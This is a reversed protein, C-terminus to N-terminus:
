GYGLIVQGVAKGDAAMIQVKPPDPMKGDAQQISAVPLGSAETLQLSLQVMGSNVIAKTQAVLPLGFALEAEKDPSITLKKAQPGFPTRFKVDTKKGAADPASSIVLNSVVYEDAPLELADAGSVNLIYKKGILQASWNGAKAKAKGLELKAPTVEIKKGDASLAVDYWKGDVAIPQGYHSKAIFKRGRPSDDEVYIAVTDGPKTIMGNGLVPKDTYSFNPLQGDLLRVLYEKGGITSKAQVGSAVIISLYRFGETRTYMGQVVTPITKDGVKVNLTAPGFYTTPGETKAAKVILEDDFKSEGAFNLRLLRPKDVDAKDSDIAVALNLGGPVTLKGAVAHPNVIGPADKANRLDALGMWDKDIADWPGVEVYKVEQAFACASMVVFTALIALRNM